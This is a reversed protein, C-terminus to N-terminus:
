VMRSDLSLGIAVWQSRLLNNTLIAVTTTGNAYAWNLTLASSTTNMSPVST